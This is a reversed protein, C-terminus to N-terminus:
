EHREGKLLAKNLAREIRKMNKKRTRDKRANAALHAQRNMGISRGKAIIQRAQEKKQIELLQQGLNAFPEITKKMVEYAKISFEALARGLEIGAEIVKERAFRIQYEMTNEVAAVQAEYEEPEKGRLDPDVYEDILAM